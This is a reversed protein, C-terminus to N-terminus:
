QTYNLQQITHSHTHTCTQTRAAARDLLEQREEQGLQLVFVRFDSEVDDGVEVADVLHTCRGDTQM